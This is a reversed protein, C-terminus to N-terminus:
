LAGPDIGASAMQLIYKHFDFGSFVPVGAAGILIYILVAEAAGKRGLLWASLYIMLTCLTVPVPGVPITWPALVCMAAAMAATMVMIRTRGRGM